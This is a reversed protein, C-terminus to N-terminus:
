VRLMLMVLGVGDPQPPETVTYTTGNIVLTDGQAAAPVDAEIALAMPQSSGIGASGPRDEFYARDFIVQITSSGNYLANVSFGHANDFFDGLTETFAV